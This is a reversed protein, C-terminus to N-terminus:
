HHCRPALFPAPLPRRNRSIRKTRRRRQRSQPPPLPLHPLRQPRKPSTTNCSGEKCPPSSSPPLPSSATDSLRFLSLGAGGLWPSNGHPSGQSSSARKAGRQRTRSAKDSTNGAKGVGYEESELLLQVEAEDEEEEDQSPTLSPKKAPCDSSLPPHIICDSSGSFRPQLSPPTIHTQLLASSSTVRSRRRRRRGHAPQNRKRESKPPSSLLFSLFPSPPQGERRAAGGGCLIPLWWGVGLHLYPSGTAAPEEEEEEPVASTLFPASSVAAAHPGRFSPPPFYFHCTGRITSSSTSTTTRTKQGSTASTAQLIISPTKLCKRERIFDKAESACREQKRRLSFKVQTRSQYFTGTSTLFILLVWEFKLNM